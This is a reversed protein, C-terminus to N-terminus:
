FLLMLDSKEKGITQHFNYREFNITNDTSMIARQIIVHYHNQKTQSNTPSTIGAYLNASYAIPSDEENTINLAKNAENQTPTNPSTTLKNVRLKVIGIKNPTNKVADAMKTVFSDTPSNMGKVVKVYRAETRGISSSVLKVVLSTIFMPKKHM